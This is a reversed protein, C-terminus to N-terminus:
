KTSARAHVVAALTWDYKESFRELQPRIIRSDQSCEFVAVRAITDASERSARALTVAKTTLCATAEPFYTRAMDTAPVTQAVAPATM